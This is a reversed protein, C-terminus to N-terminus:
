QLSKLFAVLDDDPQYRGLRGNLPTTKELAPQKLELSAHVSMQITDMTEHGRWLAIMASDVGRHLWTM